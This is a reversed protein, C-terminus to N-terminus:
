REVGLRKRAVALALDIVRPGVYAVAITLAYEPWTPLALYVALGKGILGMGIATPVEWLLSWGLPRRDSHAMALLRGLIGLAGAGASNAALEQWDGTM